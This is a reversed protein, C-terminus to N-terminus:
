SYDEIVDQGLADFLADWADAWEGVLASPEGGIKACRECTQRECKIDRAIVYRARDDLSEVHREIFRACDVSVHNGRGIAYREANICMDSFENAKLEVTKPDDARAAQAEKTDIWVLCPEGGDDSKPSHFAGTMDCHGFFGWDSVVHEAHSRYADKVRMPKGDIKVRRKDDDTLALLAGLAACANDAQHRGCLSVTLAKLREGGFAVDFTIRTREERVNEATLSLIPLEKGKAAALLVGRAAKEQRGLVVPVGPKMIGAKELAIQEITDGLFQMHDMGVETIVSVAPTIINTPDLRGGLGVEIVAVNVKEKAFCCFALATGLEFETIQVGDKECAEVAPWVSEVLAALKDGAIPEGNIRIRENYVEIYPSTYLGTKYGAARLVREIMACCSGKGNTGAVHVMTLKEQPNGLRGMLARMNELGNKCGTPYVSHIKEIAEKETM